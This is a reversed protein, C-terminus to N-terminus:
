KGNTSRNTRNEQMEQIKSFMFSNIQMYLARFQKYTMSYNPFQATMCFSQFTSEDLMKSAFAFQIEELERFEKLTMKEGGNTTKEFLYKMHVEMKQKRVLRPHNSTTNEEQIVDSATDGSANLDSDVLSVEDKNQLITIDQTRQVLKLKNLNDVQNVKCAFGYKNQIKSLSPSVWKNRLFVFRGCGFSYVFSDSVLLVLLVLLYFAFYPICLRRM